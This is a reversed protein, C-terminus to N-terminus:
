YSTTIRVALSCLTLSPPNCPVASLFCTHPHPVCCGPARLRLSRASVGPPPPPRTLASRPSRQTRAYGASGISCGIRERPQHHHIITQASTTRGGPGPGPTEGARMRDYLCVRTNVRYVCPAALSWYLPGSRRRARGNVISARSGSEGAESGGREYTQTNARGRRRESAGTALVEALILRWGNASWAQTRAANAVLSAKGCSM